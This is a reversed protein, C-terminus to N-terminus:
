SLNELRTGFIYENTSLSELRTSVPVAQDRETRIRTSSPHMRRYGPRAASIIVRLFLGFAASNVLNSRLEGSTPNELTKGDLAGHYAKLIVSRGGALTTMWCTFGSTSQPRKGMLRTMPSATSISASM